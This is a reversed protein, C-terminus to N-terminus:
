SLETKYVGISQYLNDQVTKAYSEFVVLLFALFLLYAFTIKVFSDASNMLYFIVLLLTIKLRGNLKHYVM